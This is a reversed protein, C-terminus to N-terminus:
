FENWSGGGPCFNRTQGPSITAVGPISSGNGDLTISSSSANILWVPQVASALAPFTLTNVGDLMKIFQDGVVVQYDSSVVRVLIPSAGPKGSSSLPSYEVIPM